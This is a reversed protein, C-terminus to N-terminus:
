SHDFLHAVPQTFEVGHGPHPIVCGLARSKSWVHIGEATRGDAVRRRAANTNIMAGKKLKKVCENVRETLHVRFVIREEEEIYNLM